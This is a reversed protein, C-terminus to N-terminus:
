TCRYLNKNFTQPLSTMTAFHHAYDRYAFDRTKFALTVMDFTDYAIELNIYNSAFFFHFYIFLLPLDRHPM